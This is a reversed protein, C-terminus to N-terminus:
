RPPKCIPRKADVAIFDLIAEAEPQGAFEERLAAARDGIPGQGDFVARFVSRITHMQAKTFGRRKLGNFNLGAHYPHDFSIAAYPLVDAVIFAGGAIFAHAGIRTFQHVASHGGIWVQEGVEVHGGVGVANAFVCKDGVTCDHAVHSNVMLLCDAGIKTVVSGNPSGCHLTVHERLVTRPGVELRSEGGPKLNLIQPPGGLVAFPYVEVQEGIDTDGMVNVNAHLTVGDRLRVKPGILCFPGIYVDNGIEAKPDVFATPHINASM